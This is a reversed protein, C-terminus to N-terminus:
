FPIDSKEEPVAGYEEAKIIQTRAQDRNKQIFEAVKILEVPKLIRQFSFIMESYINTGAKKEELRFKTVAAPFPIGRDYLSTMYDDFSRLSSPTVTLRRPLTSGEMLVMTRKMNKCAKGKSGPKQDSGYQNQPCEECLEAQLNESGPIPEIGNMSFCDPIKAPENETAQKEWWANARHHDLLVGEFETIKSEDPMKYLQGQHIIKIQPLRPVVGEMNASLKFFEAVEAPIDVALKDRVTIEM